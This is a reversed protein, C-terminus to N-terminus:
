EMELPSQFGGQESSGIVPLSGEEEIEGFVVAKVASVTSLMEPTLTGYMQGIRHMTEQQVIEAEMIDIMNLVAGSDLYIESALSALNTNGGRSIMSHYQAFRTSLSYRGKYVKPKTTNSLLRQIGAPTTKKGIEKRLNKEIGKNTASISQKIEPLNEKMISLMEMYSDGMQKSIELCGPDSSGECGTEQYLRQQTELKGITAKLSSEMNGAVEGTHSLQETVDTPFLNLVPKSNAAQANMAPLAAGFLFIFATATAIKKRIKMQPRRQSTPKYLSM